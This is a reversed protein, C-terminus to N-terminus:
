LNYLFFFFFHIFLLIIIFLSLFFHIYIPLIQNRHLIYVIQNFRYATFLCALFYVFCNVCFLLLLKSTVIQGNVSLLKKKVSEWVVFKLSKWVFSNASLLKFNSSFQLLFNEMDTSFM